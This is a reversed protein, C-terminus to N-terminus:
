IPYSLKFEDVVNKADTENDFSGLYHKKGERTIISVFKGTKSVLYYGKPTDKSKMVNKANTLLQLNNWKNNRPNDDDHDIHLSPEENTIMKLIVRHADYMFGNISVRIYRSKNGGSGLIYGTKKNTLAGTIENYDYLEKLTEQTPLTLRKM